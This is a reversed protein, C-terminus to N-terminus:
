DKQLERLAAELAANHWNDTNELTRPVFRDVSFPIGDLRNGQADTDLSINVIQSYVRDAPPETKLPRLTTKFFSPRAADPVVDIILRSWAPDGATPQGVLRVRGRLKDAMQWVFGDCSSICFQEVLISVQGLFPHGYPTFRGESCDRNDEACFQPVPPLFGGMPTAGYVGKEQLNRFWIEHGQSNWFIGRRLTPDELEVSKRLRVYQEQFADPLLLQYYEIPPQGGGNEIVDIILHKWNSHEEWWPRLAAVEESVSKISANPSLKRYNFRTIRLIAVDPRSVSEFVCARNGAYSLTFGAYRNPTNACELASIDPQSRKTADILPVSINWRIGARELTYVLPEKRSWELLEARFNNRLQNDCQMPLSFKCFVFNERRWAGMSRGNIAILRDGVHPRQDSVFDLDPAVSSIKFETKSTSSVEAFFDVSLRVRGPLTAGFANGYEIYSHLNPYTNDVRSLVRAWEAPSQATVAEGRLRSMTLKWPEIRAARVQLTAGDLREIQRQMADFIEGRAKVTPLEFKSEDARAASVGFIFVLFGVVSYFGGLSM